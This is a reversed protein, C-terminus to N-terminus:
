TDTLIGHHYPSALIYIYLGVGESNVPGHLLGCANGSNPQDCATVIMEWLLVGKTKREVILNKGRTVQRGEGMVKGKGKVMVTRAIPTDKHNDEHDDEGESPVFNDAVKSPSSMLTDAESTLAEMRYLSGNEEKGEKGEVKGEEINTATHVSICFGCFEHEDVLDSGHDSIVAIKAAFDEVGYKNNIDMTSGRTLRIESIKGKFTAGPPPPIPTAEFGMKQVQKEYM